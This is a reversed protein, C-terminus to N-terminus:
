LCTLDFFIIDPWRLPMTGRRVLPFPMISKSSGDLAFCHSGIFEVTNSAADNDHAPKLVLKRRRNLLDSEIRLGEAVSKRM